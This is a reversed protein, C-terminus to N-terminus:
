REEDWCRRGMDMMDTLVMTLMMTLVEVVAADGGREDETAVM